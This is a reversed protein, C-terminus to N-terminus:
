EGSSEETGGGQGGRRRRKRRRRKRNSYGSGGPGSEGEQQTSSADAAPSDPVDGDVPQAGPPEVSPDAGGAKEDAAAGAEGGGADDARGRDRGGRRKRRRSRKSGSPEGEQSSSATDGGRSYGKSGASVQEDAPPSPTAPEATAGKQGGQSRGRKAQRLARRAAAEEAAAADAEQKARIERDEDKSLKRINEVPYASPSPDQDLRILVLQTLIQTDIVTGPGDDTMMRSQRHPLNKRLQEYTQDEYRLCCMLRGCRGSIKSPDLTQKQVKASRMSIPKLVKLFQKCCCHQGCREYDAVLRAEERDNVQHMEIRTQFESALRRVLERFDVWQESTYHFIVREGGLLQEIDVLKMRLGLQNILRNTFMRYDPKRADLREQEALDERTATRLVRGQTTFPYNKGGSNEVYELVEKRTLSMGCGGNPCTATLMEGLEIGRPTRVVLKTGCGPKSDLDSPLEAINRMYGYRVVLTKPPEPKKPREQEEELM